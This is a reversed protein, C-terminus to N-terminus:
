RLIDGQAHHLLTHEETTLPMLNDLENNDKAGDIHHVVIDPNLYRKYGLTILYPSAPDSVRLHEEVVLRHELVYGDRDAFPHDRADVQIYGHWYMWGRYRRM